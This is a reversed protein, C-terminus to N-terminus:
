KNPKEFKVKFQGNDKELVVEIEKENLVKDPLKIDENTVNSLLKEISAVADANTTDISAKLVEEKDPNITASFGKNWFSIGDETIASDKIYNIDSLINTSLDKLSMDTLNEGKYKLSNIKDITIDVASDIKESTESNFFGLWNFVLAILVVIIALKILRM